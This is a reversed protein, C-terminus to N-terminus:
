TCIALVRHFGMPIVLQLKQGKNGDPVSGFLVGNELVNHVRSLDQTTQSSAKKCLEQIELDNQQEITIQDLDVPLNTPCATSKTAKVVALLESSGPHEQNRSLVDAVVNCIGKRYKVTFQFGQLRITWRILWSNPKSHQFVWTLSAHDTVVEFPQGELYHRWKEVAWVVALCEKESVSYAKDAGRLLRSAYSVVHEEGEIEQTLLAGLGIESADTQVKFTKNFDPPTLVPTQTLDRKIIELAHQCQETWIWSAKKQKLAHLPAAKASFNPFFRHYWGALGLFRQVDKISQPTPFDQVAAVKAPDTKIGEASVIHGLFTM